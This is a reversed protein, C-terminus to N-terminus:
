GYDRGLRKAAQQGSVCGTQIASQLLPGLSCLKSTEQADTDTDKGTARCVEEFGSVSVQLM